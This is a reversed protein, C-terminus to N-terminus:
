GSGCLARSVKRTVLHRAPVPLVAPPLRYLEMRMQEGRVAPAAFRKAPRLVAPASAEMERVPAMRPPRRKTGKTEGTLNGMWFELFGKIKDTRKVIQGTWTRIKALAAKL